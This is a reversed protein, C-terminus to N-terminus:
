ARVWSLRSFRDGGDAPDKTTILTLQQGALTVKRIYTLGVETPDLSYEILHHVEAQSEVVDFRGCYGYYTELYHLRDAAPFAGFDQDNRAAPRKSSIQVSMHGSAAYIIIGKQPAPRDDWSHEVGGPYITVANTLRWAGIMQERLTRDAHASALAPASAVLATLAARRTMPM